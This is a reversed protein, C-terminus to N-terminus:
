NVTRHIGQQRFIVLVNIVITRVLKDLYPVSRREWPRSLTVERAVEAGRGEGWAWAWDFVGTLDSRAWDFEGTLDSRAM